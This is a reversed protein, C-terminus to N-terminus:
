DQRTRENRLVALASEPPILPKKLTASVHTEFAELQAEIRYRRSITEHARLSLDARLRDNGALTAIRDVISRVDAVACLFGNFADVIADESGSVRTAIPVLGHAMSELMAISTGETESPLVYVDYDRYVREMEFHPVGGKV